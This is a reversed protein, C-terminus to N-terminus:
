LAARNFTWVVLALFCRTEKVRVAFGFSMKRERLLPIPDHSDFRHLACAFVTGVEWNAELYSTRKKQLVARCDYLLKASFRPLQRTHRALSCLGYTNRGHGQVGCRCNKKAPLSYRVAKSDQGTREPGTFPWCCHPFSFPTKAVIRDTWCSSFFIPAALYQLIHASSFFLWTVSKLSNRAARM